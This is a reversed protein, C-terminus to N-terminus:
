EPIKYGETSGSMQNNNHYRRDKTPANFPRGTGLTSTTWFYEKISLWTKRSDSSNSEMRQDMRSCNMMWTFWTLEHESRYHKKSIVKDTAEKLTKDHIKLWRFCLYTKVDPDRRTGMHFCQLPAKNFFPCWRWAVQGELYSEM